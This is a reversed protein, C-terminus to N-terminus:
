LSSQLKCFSVKFDSLALLPSTYTDIKFGYRELTLRFLMTLNPEDAAILIRSHMETIMKNRPLSRSDFSVIEM